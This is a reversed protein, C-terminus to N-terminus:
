PFNSGFNYTFKSISDVYARNSFTDEASQVLLSGKQVFSADNMELLCKGAVYDTLPRDFKPLVPINTGGALPVTPAWERVFDVFFGYPGSTAGTTTRAPEYNFLIYQSSGLDGGTGEIGEIDVQTLAYTTPDQQQSFDVPLDPVQVQSLTLTHSANEPLIRLAMVRGSESNLAYETQGQILDFPITDTVGGSKRFIENVGEVLYENIVDDSWRLGQDEIIRRVNALLQTVTM